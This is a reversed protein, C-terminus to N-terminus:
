ATASQAAANDGWHQRTCQRAFRRLTNMRARTTRRCQAAPGRTGQPARYNANLSCGQRIVALSRGLAARGARRGNRVRHRRNSKGSDSGTEARRSSIAARAHARLWTTMTQPSVPEPLVVCSGFIASDAPGRGPHRRCRAQDAVGLRPADGGAAHGLADRLLQVRRQALHDAVLHAELVPQLRTRRDLQHGVADQQGLRLAVRQQAGVVRQDDVLRVLAAQVDVEQEAVQPLDQRAPGVQLHDHGRRRDIGLAERLVERGRGPGAGTILTDPRRNGTSCRQRGYSSLARREVQVVGDGVGHVFQPAVAARPSM